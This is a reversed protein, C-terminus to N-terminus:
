SSLGAMSANYWRATYTEHLIPLPSKIIIKQEVKLPIYSKICLGSNSINLIVGKVTKDAADSLVFEVPSEFKYRTERRTEVSNFPGETRRGDFSTSVQSFFESFSKPIEKNVESQKDIMSEWAERVEEGGEAFMKLQLRMMTERLFTNQHHLKEHEEFAEVYKAKPALGLSNYFDVMKEYIDLANPCFVNKYPYSRWFMRAAELGERQMKQYFDCFGKRFLFDNFLNMMSKLLEENYM